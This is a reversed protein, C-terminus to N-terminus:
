YEGLLKVKKYPAVGGKKNPYMTASIAHPNTSENVSVHWFHKLYGHRDKGESPVQFFSFTDEIFHIKHDPHVYFAPSNGKPVSIIIHGKPKLVRWCEEICFFLQEPYFHEFLHSSNIVDISDDDFPLKESGVDLVFDTAPFKRIDIGVWGDQKTNGCGLDVYKKEM